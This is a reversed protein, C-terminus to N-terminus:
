SFGIAFAQATRHHTPKPLSARGQLTCGQAWLTHEPSPRTRNTDRTLLTNCAHEAKCQRLWRFSLGFLAVPIPTHTPTYPLSSRRNGQVWRARGCETLEIPHFIEKSTRSFRHDCQKFAGRPTPPFPHTHTCCHARAERSTWAWPL